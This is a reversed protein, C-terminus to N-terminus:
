ENFPFAVTLVPKPGLLLKNDKENRFTYCDINARFRSM